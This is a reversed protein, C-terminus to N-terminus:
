PEEDEEGEEKLKGNGSPAADRDAMKFGAKLLKTAERTRTRYNRCGMVVAILRTDERKATAVIHYGGRGVFGTKLGDVDPCDNLLNNSNRLTNGEFTFSRMSHIKMSEPFDRLYAQSLKLMDRATTFQNKAPLGNPNQFRSRTMKLERAKENMKEVFTDVDGGLYEAVAVSADNGSVIAMGKILEELSVESGPSLCMRSGGTNAANESIKVRDQPRVEMDKMAEHVIYLSLIKTLSAPQMPRDPNKSFLIRGSTMDMLIASKAKIRLSAAPLTAPALITVIFCLLCLSIKLRM